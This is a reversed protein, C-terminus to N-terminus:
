IRICLALEVHAEDGCTSEWQRRTVASSSRLALVLGETVLPVSVAM